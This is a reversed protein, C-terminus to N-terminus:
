LRTEGSFARSPEGDILLRIYFAYNPLNLFDEPALAPAFERTMVAADRSGLRFAIRTGANGIITDALESGLQSLHQHGLTLGIKRKRLEELMSGVFSSAVSGLEDVYVFVPHSDTRALGALAVYALLLSGLLYAPGPGLTGKALDVLVIQKQQMARGLRLPRNNGTLISRLREDSVYAGIKNLFPAAISSRFGLSYSPWERYFFEELSPSRVQSLCRRQFSRDRLLRPIDAITADQAALLAGIANRLVHEVRPGWSDEWQRSFVSVLAAISLPAHSRSVGKLPNFSFDPNDAALYRVRDSPVGQQALSDRVRRALDGHPDILVVSADGRIADQTAMQGLMTSKGTGTKGLIHIHSFRDWERIGFRRLKARANAYGIYTVNNEMIEDQLTASWAGLSRWRGNLFAGSGLDPAFLVLAGRSPTHM